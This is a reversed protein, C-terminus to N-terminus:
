GRRQERSHWVRLVVVTSEDKLMYHIVYAGTGFPISLVRRETGDGLSRGLRPSSTLLEIGEVIKELARVAAEEEGNSVYAVITDM